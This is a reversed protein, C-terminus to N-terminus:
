ASRPKRGPNFMYIMYKMSNQINISPGLESQVHNVQIGGRRIGM